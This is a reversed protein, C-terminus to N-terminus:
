SRVGAWRRLAAAAQARDAPALDALDVGHNGGEVWLVHSDRGGPHFAEAVSPDRTGNVFLMRSGHRRVWRDVDPMAARDFPMPVDRPVFTRPAMADPHRLLGALHGAPSSVYGLQTGLQYFYPVFQRAVADAYLNLGAIGDLWTYLADTTAHPAPIAAADAATSRQWFMFPVRLVAAEFAKEASGAIEFGTGAAATEAAYRAVLDARRLLLERQVAKLADRSERTGVRELFRVYASNDRDDVNNPASYALTGAVDHPHFRRHYVAAMGGKSSGTSIWAGPYLGRLLRVVRHYDDAAQRITLLSYDTTDPRSSGFWRHEVQVQNAELLVTPEARRPASMAAYGTSFLVTPRDAGTHLLTLRQEFTGAAPNRHDVPQRLGLVLFRYGPDAAPREEIVRLGPLAGLAAVLGDDGSPSRRGAAAHAPAAVALGAASATASAVTAGLLRRRTWTSM